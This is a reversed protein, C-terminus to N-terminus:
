KFFIDESEVYNKLSDVIKDQEKYLEISYLYIGDIFFFIIMYAWMAYWLGMFGLKFVFTLLVGVPIFIFLLSLNSIIKLNAHRNLGKLFYNFISDGWDFFMVFSYIKVLFSFNENFEPNDLYIYGLYHGFLFNLISVILAIIMMIFMINRMFFKTKEIKKNTMYKYVRNVIVVSFGVIIHNLLRVYNYSIGSSIFNIKDIFYSLVVFLEISTEHLTNYLSNIIGFRCYIFFKSTNLLDSNLSFVYTDETKHPNNLYVFFSTMVFTVFASIGSSIAAGYFGLNFYLIFYFCSTIHIVLAILYIVMAILHGEIIQLFKTNLFHLITFAYSILEIKIFQSTQLAMIPEVGFLELFFRSCFSFPLIIILFILVCFTKAINYIDMFLDYRKAIYLKSGFFEFAQLTGFCFITGFINMYINGMQLININLVSKESDLHGLFIINITRLLYFSLFIIVHCWSFKKIKQVMKSFTNKRKNEEEKELIAFLKDKFDNIENAGAHDLSFKKLAVTQLKTLRRKDQGERSPQETKKSEVVRDEKLIKKEDEDSDYNKTVMEKEKPILLEEMDEKFILM